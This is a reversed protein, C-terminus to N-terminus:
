HIWSTLHGMIAAAVRDDFKQGSNREEGTRGEQWSKGSGALLAFMEQMREAFLGEINEVFYASKKRANAGWDNRILVKWARKQLVPPYPYL